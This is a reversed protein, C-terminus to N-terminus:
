RPQASLLAQRLLPSLRDHGQGAPSTTSRGWAGVPSPPLLRPCRRDARNGTLRTPVLGTRLYGAVTNDVCPVGSLSSAHTTGDVGAVLSASPFLRRVALAGSFPTAADRTESILLIKQSVAAGSVTLRRHAPVKWSLCPANYWTNGWTLFPARRHVAWSAARTRAWGPWAADTCQVANYTAFSNDDGMNADRYLAALTGGRHKRVLASYALGLDVWNYVYYGADLMADALEDPGLRGHAAPKRDLRKLQKYYGAKIARWRKGLHFAGPHRAVYQWFVDMNRDFARDQDLNAAFWVRSPNVVGDLVFRGVHTPYRTAYVEGLYTGYSFGYYSITSVGLAQRISEMDRVTDLTSLHPLLARKAATDACAAAYARSRALWTRALAAKRPVYSPRDFTFFRRSCHLSPSSAGVGRPDFGIWDYSSGVNGPVYDSLSPMSLGSGGPGGPNVLLAGRYTTSTHQRRTLALTITPGTPDDHDRPVTLSGCQLGLYTLELDSCAHWSISGTDAVAPAQTAAPVSVLGLVVLVASVIAPLRLV